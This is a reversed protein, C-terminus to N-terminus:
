KKEEKPLQPKIAELVEDELVMFYKSFQPPVSVDDFSKKLLDKEDDALEINGKKNEVAEDLKRQLRGYTRLLQGKIGGQGTRPDQQHKQEVAMRIYYASLDIPSEKAEKPLNYSLNLNM